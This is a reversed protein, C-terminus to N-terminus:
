KVQLNNFEAVRAYRVAKGSKIAEKIAAKDIDFTIKKKFWKRALKNEDDIIVQESKRFSFSVKPCEWKEGKLMKSVYFCLGEAKKDLAKKRKTLRDIEDKIAKAEAQTNKIVCGLAELKDDRAIQLESILDTTEQSVEGDNENAEAFMRNIAEEMQQNIDYLTM